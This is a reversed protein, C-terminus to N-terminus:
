GSIDLLGSLEEHIEKKKAIKDNILQMKNNIKHIDYM